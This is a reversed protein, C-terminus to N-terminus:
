AGRGGGRPRGVAAHAHRFQFLEGSLRQHREARVRNRMAIEIVTGTGFLLGLDGPALMLQFFGDAAQDLMKGIWVTREVIIGKGNACLIIKSRRHRADFLRDTSFSMAMAQRTEKHAIPIASIKLSLQSTKKTASDLGSM